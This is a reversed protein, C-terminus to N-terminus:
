RPQLRHFVRCHRGTRDMMAAICLGPDLMDNQNSLAPVGCIPGLRSYKRRLQCGILAMAISGLYSAAASYLIFGAIMQWAREDPFRYQPQNQV